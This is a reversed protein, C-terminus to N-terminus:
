PLARMIPTLPFCVPRLPDHPHSKGSLLFPSSPPPRKAQSPKAMARHTTPPHTTPPPLSAQAQASPSLHLRESSALRPSATHLTPPAPLVPTAPSVPCSEVEAFSSYPPSPPLSAGLPRPCCPPPQPALPRLVTATCVSMPLVFLVVVFVSLSYRNSLAVRAAASSLPPQTVGPPPPVLTALGVVCWWLCASPCVRGHLSCSRPERRLSWVMRGVCPQAAACRFSPCVVCPPWPLAFRSMRLCTSLSYRPAPELARQLCSEACHTYYRLQLM